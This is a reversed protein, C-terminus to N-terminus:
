KVECHRAKPGHVSQVELSDGEKGGGANCVVEYVPTRVVGVFQGGVCIWREQWFPVSEGTVSGSQLPQRQEHEDTCCSYRLALGSMVTSCRELELGRTTKLSMWRRAYRECRCERVGCM